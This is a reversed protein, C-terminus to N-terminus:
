APDIAFRLPDALRVADGADHPVALGDLGRTVTLTQVREANPVTAAAVRMREGAVTVDFPFEAPYTADDVWPRGPLGVELDDVWVPATESDDSYVIGIHLAIDSVGSETGTTTDEVYLRTWEGAPLTVAATTNIGDVLSVSYELAVDFGGDPSFLWVSFQYTVGSVGPMLYVRDPTCAFRSTGGSLPAFRASQRGRLSRVETTTLSGNDIDQWASLDASEFGANPVVPRQVPVYVDISTASDSVSAAVFSRSSDYRTPLTGLDGSGELIGARYPGAPSTNGVDDWTYPGFRATRGRLLLSVPGLPYQPPLNSVEIIDGEDLTHWPRALEYKQTISPRIQRVRMGPWTGRLLDFSARDIVTEDSSVPYQRADAYRGRAAIDDEDSVTVSAAGPRSAEILNRVSRDDLTPQFPTQIDPEHDHPSADLQLAAERNVLDIFTRYTLALQSRTESLIGGDALEVAQLESTFTGASQTAMRVTADPDGIVEAAVGEEQCLRLFRRGARERRYGQIAEFTFPEADNPQSIVVHGWGIAPEGEGPGPHSVSAPEFGDGPGNYQFSAVLIEDNGQPPIQFIDVEITGVAAPDDVVMQLRLPQGYVEEPAFGFSSEIAGFTEAAAFRLTFVDSTEVAVMIHRYISSDEANDLVFIPVQSDPEGSISFLLDVRFRDDAQFPPYNRVPLFWGGDGGSQQPLGESGGWLNLAGFSSDPDIEGNVSTEPLATQVVSTRAQEEMPWYELVTALSPVHRSLPSGLPEDSQGAQRLLGSVVVSVRAYGPDDGGASSDNEPDAAAIDVGPDSLDGQPWQPSWEAVYGTNLPLDGSGGDEIRPTIRCPAGVVVHPYYPSILHGPTYQGRTDDLAFAWQFPRARPHEDARGLYGRVGDLHKVDDSVDVWVLEEVPTSSTGGFAIEVIFLQPDPFFVM